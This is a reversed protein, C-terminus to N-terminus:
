RGLLLKGGLILATMAGLAWITVWLGAPLHTLSSLKGADDAKTGHEFVSRVGALLLIWSLGYAAVSQVPVPGYRALMYFVLGGVVVLLFGFVNRVAPLLIIMLVLGIWLVPAVLGDAILAAAALGFGSPGLYGAVGATIAVGANETKGTGDQYLWVGRVQYGVSSGILAHAGEHAIVDIHRVLSWSVSIVVAALAVLGLVIVEGAPLRPALHAAGTAVLVM